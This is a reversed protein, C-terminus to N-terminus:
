YRALMQLQEAESLILLSGKNEQEYLLRKGKVQYYTQLEQYYNKGSIIMSEELQNWAQIEALCKNCQNCKKGKLCEEIIQTNVEQM